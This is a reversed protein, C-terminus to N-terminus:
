SGTISGASYTPLTYGSGGFGKWTYSGSPSSLAAGGTPYKIEASYSLTGDVIDDPAPPNGPSPDTYSDTWTLDFYFITAAGTNNNTNTRAKITYTNSAYPSAANTSYITQGATLLSYIGAGGYEITGAASLINTWSTNQSTAAGGSRSSTIRVKGGANWFYRAQLSSAFTLSYTASVLSSWSSTRNTSGYSATTMRTSHATFRNSDVTNAYSAFAASDTPIVTDGITTGALALAAASGNQHASANLLDYRISAYDDPGITQGVTVGSGFTTQGYGRDPTVGTGMLYYGINYPSNVDVAQVIDGTAAM